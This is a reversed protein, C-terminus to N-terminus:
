IIPICTLLDYCFFFCIHFIELKIKGFLTETTILPADQIVTYTLDDYNITVKVFVERAIQVAEFVGFGAQILGRFSLKLIQFASTSDIYFSANVLQSFYTDTPYASLYETLKYQLKNCQPVCAYQCLEDINSILFVETVNKM